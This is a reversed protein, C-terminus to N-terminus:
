VVTGEESGSLLEILRRRHWAPNGFLAQQLRARKVFLHVDYEWTYGNGGYSQLALRSLEAYADATHSKAISSWLSVTDGDVVCRVAREAAARSTELAMLMNACYHKIAQFSGVPRGFQERNAVYEVTDALLQEMGGVADVSLAVAARDILAGVVGAASGRAGLVSSTDVRVGSLTLKACRHTLDTLHVPEITVGDQDADIMVLSCGHADRAVVVIRDAFQADLVYDATGNLELGGDKEMLDVSPLQDLGGGPGALAVSLRLQGEAVRPLLAARQEETGALEIAGAGLVTNSLLMTPAVVRGLEGLVVCLDEFTGGSGGYREDIGLGCWGLEAAIDWALQDFESPEIVERTRSVPLKDRVVRRVVARLEALNEEREDV